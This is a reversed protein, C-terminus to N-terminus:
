GWESWGPHRGGNFIEKETELVLAEALKTFDELIDDRMAPHHGALLVSLLDALTMSVVVPHHGALLPRIAHSLKEAQETANAPIDLYQEREYTPRTM